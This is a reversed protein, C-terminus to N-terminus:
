AKLYPSDTNLHQQVYDSVAEELAMFKFKPLAKKLKSMNAETFYQYQARLNEPMDIYKINTKKNLASFTAKALDEFTRAQGTGLNYLGSISPKKKGVAMLEIM